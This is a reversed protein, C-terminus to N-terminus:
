FIIISAGTTSVKQASKLLNLHGREELTLDATDLLDPRRKLTREIAKERRWKAINAHNGSKLVEPVAMGRFVDPRTYHPYELLGEEFSERTLSDNNGLVGPKLRSVADILVMAAIEGGSIVYDGISIERDSILSRAREDIGEYRGCILVVQDYAALENAIRQNFREGQPTMLVNIRRGIKPVAEVAEVLPEPKMVMGAGGGYPTDDVTRHADHTFDRIDHFHVDILGDERARKLISVDLPSSFMGPFITVVDFRMFVPRGSDAIVM